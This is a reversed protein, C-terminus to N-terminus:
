HIEFYDRLSADSYDLPHGFARGEGGGSQHKHLCQRDSGQLSIAYTVKGYAPGGEVVKTCYNYLLKGTCHSETDM